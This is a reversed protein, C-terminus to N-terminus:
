QLREIIIGRSWAGGTNTGSSTLSEVQVATSSNLPFVNSYELGSSISTGVQASGIIYGNAASQGTQTAKVYHAVTYASSSATTAFIYGTIRYVGAATTTYATAYSATPSTEGTVGTINVPCPLHDWGSLCGLSNAAATIQGSSNTATVAASTPMAAGNIQAVTPNPYSGSLDGSATGNPPLAAPTSAVQSYQVQNCVAAFTGTIGIAYLGTACYANAVPAVVVATASPQTSLCPSSFSLLFSSTYGSGGSTLTVSNVGYNTSGPIPFMRAYGAAGGGSGAAFSVTPLTPCTFVGADAVTVASVYQARAAHATLLLAATLILTRKM